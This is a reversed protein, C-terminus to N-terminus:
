NSSSQKEHSKIEKEICKSIKTKIRSDGFVSLADYVKVAKLNPFKGTLADAIPLEKDGYYKRYEVYSCSCATFAWVGYQQSIITNWGTSDEFACVYTYEKFEQENEGSIIEADTKQKLEKPSPLAAIAICIGTIIAIIILLIAVIAIWKRNKTKKKKNTSQNSRKTKAPIKNTTM